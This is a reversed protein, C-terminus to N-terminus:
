LLEEVARVVAPADLLYKKLLLRYEGSEAFTDRLGIRRMPTPLNEGLVEAVASGLGGNVQHDEIAVVRRTKAASRVVLEGDLPKLTHMDIVEASLGRAALRDAAELAVSVLDGIAILSVDAGPRLCVGKGITFESDPAYIVPVPDRTFRLYVPGDLAAAARVLSKTAYYDAPMIVTMNPITRMIGLDETGQHTPGDNASTVGGHSVAIKVNLRPYAVFSRVQECARMSGFVAYTSVFPIKGTTALGAAAVVANAEACGMEFFRGPFARAFHQTQTSKAIDCELVVLRPNERGLEVLTEGYAFRTAIPETRRGDAPQATM